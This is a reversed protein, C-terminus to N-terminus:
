VLDSTPLTLHTYSVPNYFQNSHVFNGTVVGDFPLPVAYALLNESGSTMTFPIMVRNALPVYGANLPNLREVASVVRQERPTNGGFAYLLGAWFDGRPWEDPKTATKLFETSVVQLAM